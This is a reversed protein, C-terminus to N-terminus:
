PQLAALEARRWFVEDFSFSLVSPACTIESAAYRNVTARHHLHLVEAIKLFNRGGCMRIRRSGLRCAWPEIGVRPQTIGFGYPVRFTLSNSITLTPSLTFGNQHPLQM